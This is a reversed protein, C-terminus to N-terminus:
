VELILARAMRERDFRRGTSVFIDIKFGTQLHILNFASKRALAEEIAARSLYFTDELAQCFGDLHGQVLEVVLDCDRTSRPEGHLSSAYSGGIVYPIALAELVRTVELPTELPKMPSPEQRAEPAGAARRHDAGMRALAWGTLMAEELMALRGQLGRRRLIDFQVKEAEPSTDRSLVGM